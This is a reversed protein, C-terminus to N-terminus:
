PVTIPVSQSAASSTGSTGGQADLAAYAKVTVSYSGSPLHAITTTPTTAGSAYPVDIVPQASIAVKYGGGASNVGAERNAAWSITVQHDTCANRSQNCSLTGPCATAASWALCGSSDTGCTQIQLGSCQTAGSSTCSNSCSGGRNGGGGGCGTGLSLVLVLVALTRGRGHM